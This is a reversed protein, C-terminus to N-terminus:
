HSLFKGGGSGQSNGHGVIELGEMKMLSCGGWVSGYLLKWREVAFHRLWKGPLTCNFM